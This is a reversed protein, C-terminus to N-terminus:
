IEVQKGAGDLIFVSPDNREEVIKKHFELATMNQELNFDYIYKDPSFFYISGSNFFAYKKPKKLNQM